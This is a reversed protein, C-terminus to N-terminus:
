NIFINDTDEFTLQQRGNMVPEKLVKLIYDFPVAPDIDDKEPYMFVNSCPQRKLFQVKLLSSLKLVACIQGIYNTLGKKGPYAAIVWQGDMFSDKRSLDKSAVECAEPDSESQSGEVDEDSESSSSQIVQKSKKRRSAVPPTASTSPQQDLDGPNIAKGPIIKKGRPKKEKPESGCHKKLMNMIAENFHIGVSDGRDRNANPLRKLVAEKNLPYIGCAEFGATINEAKLKNNLKSLLNPFQTKPISGKSRSEKRWNDLIKRWESKLPGFVAVDLPQMLHTANPLLCVFRIDNTVCGEIVASTFHSALNDGILVKPGAVPAHQIFQLFVDTFWREFTRADFWGSKTCDFVTGVPAGTTWEVYCHKSKYIVMPPLFVGGASGCYMLSIAAKSHQIKREIRRLGRRCVVTKAGPEDTVNTEDYNYINIPDVGHLSVALHEFYSTVSEVDIEARSPKVNDALRQTLNHRKIFSKLWDYGPCNKNFRSDTVGSKDLYAKVLLRVDLGTLPIKWEGLLDITKLLYQEGEASFRLQGGSKRVNHKNHVHNNLTGFPISYKKAAARMSMQHSTCKLVATQLMGMTYASRYSRNGIKRVYTRM